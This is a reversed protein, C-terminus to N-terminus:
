SLAEYYVQLTKQAAKDWSFLKTVRERATLGMRVRQSEEKLLFILAEALAEVNRPEALLGTHGNKVVEPLACTNFAVVPKGCAQAEVPTLGFGEWLSPYCFVDCAAYLSPVDQAAVYGTFVVSHKVKKILRNLDAIDYRIAGGILFKTEPLEKLVKSAAEILFQVGKYPALRGFYLVVPRNGLRYYKRICNGSLNPNFREIDVGNYIVQIQDERVFYRKMLEKKLFYSVTIIKQINMHLSSFAGLRHDIMKLKQKYNRWAKIPAFGHYTFVHPKRWFISAANGAFIGPHYQTHILDFTKLLSLSKSPFILNRFLPIGDGAFRLEYIPINKSKIQSERSIIAVDNGALKVREAIEMIHNVLGSGVHLSSRVYAVQLNM